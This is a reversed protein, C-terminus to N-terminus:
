FIAPNIMFYQAALLVLVHRHAAPHTSGSCGMQFPAVDDGAPTGPRLATGNTGNAMFRATVDQLM